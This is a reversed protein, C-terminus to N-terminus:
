WDCITALETRYMCGVYWEQKQLPFILFIISSRILVSLLNSQIWLPSRLNQNACEAVVGNWCEYLDLNLHEPVQM